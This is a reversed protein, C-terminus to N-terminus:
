PRKVILTARGDKIELHTGGGLDRVSSSPEILLGSLQSPEGSWESDEIPTPASPPDPPKPAIEAAAEPVEPRSQQRALIRHIEDIVEPLHPRQKFHTRWRLWFVYREWRHLAPDHRLNAHEALLYLAERYNPSAESLWFKKGQYEFWINLGCPADGRQKLDMAFNGRVINYTLEVGKPITVEGCPYDRTIVLDNQKAKRCIFHLRKPFCFAIWGTQSLM